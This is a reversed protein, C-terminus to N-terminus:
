APMPGSVRTRGSTYTRRAHSDIASVTRRAFIRDVASSVEVIVYSNRGSQTGLAIVQPRGIELFVELIRQQHDQDVVEYIEISWHSKPSQQPM